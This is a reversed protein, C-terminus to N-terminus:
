AVPERPKWDVKTHLSIRDRDRQAESCSMTFYYEGDPTETELNQTLSKLSNGPV